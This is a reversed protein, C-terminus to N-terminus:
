LRLGLGAAFCSREGGDIAAVAFILIQAIVYTALVEMHVTGKNAM